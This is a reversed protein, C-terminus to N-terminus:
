KGVLLLDCRWTSMEEYLIQEYYVDIDSQLM